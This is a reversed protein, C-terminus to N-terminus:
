CVNRMVDARKERKCGRMIKGCKECRYTPYTSVSTASAKAIRNLVDHGCCVCRAKDEPLFLAVNPHKKDWMRLKLYVRELLEVDNANYERMREWADHDDVMCKLWLNFGEHETKCGIGLYRAIGELKNTPFRFCGKAIQLTDVSKYPSPPNLGHAMWRTALVKEDFGRGNHAIIVDAKDFMELMTKVVRKDDKEGERSDVFVTKEGLWKCAWSLVETFRAIQNPSIYQKFCGWVHALMPSTEIDIVLIRPVVDPPVDTTNAGAKKLRRLYRGVTEHKIKFRKAAGDVGNKLAFMAVEVCVM